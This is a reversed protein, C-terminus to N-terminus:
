EALPIDDDELSDMQGDPFLIGGGLFSSHLFTKILVMLTYISDGQSIKGHEWGLWTRNIEFEKNWQKCTIYHLSRTGARTKVLPLQLLYLPSHQYSSM